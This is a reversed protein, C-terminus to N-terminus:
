GAVGTLPTVPVVNIKDVYKVLSKYPVCKPSTIVSLCQYKRKSIVGGKYMIKISRLMNDERHRDTSLAKKIRPTKDIYQVIDKDSAVHVLTTWLGDKVAQETEGHVRKATAITAERRFKSERTGLVLKSNDGDNVRSPQTQSPSEAVSAAASTSPCSELPM